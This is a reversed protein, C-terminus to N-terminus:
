RGGAVSFLSSGGIVREWPDDLRGQRLPAETYARLAASQEKVSRGGNARRVFGTELWKPATEKCGYVQWSSWPYAELAKLRRVVLDAGPDEIAAVKARAQDPKGLGLGAIRVPNLHLYRVAEAVDEDKQIVM